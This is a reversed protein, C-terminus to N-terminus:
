PSYLFNRFFSSFKAYTTITITTSLEYFKLNVDALFDSFKMLNEIIWLKELTIWLHSKYRTMISIPAVM